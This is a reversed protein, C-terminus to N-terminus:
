KARAVDALTSLSKLVTAGYKKLRKRMVRVAEPNNDVLIATRDLRAAAEGATGSGAFFDLVIDGPRSHVRVIREIIKLPKQTPYGSKESGTPSVITNWWVDTPTKGRAAKEPGALGPAMYPIRDIDDYNFVFQGPNRSYWLINDHKAPWRSKSRGGFDYSWIIENVFAERGFITDMLVKVYHVERYDLHVFISGDDKLVRHAEQLRPEMFGLFDECSDEYAMKGIVETKYRRGQFGSRDGSEPDHTVRLTTRAQTRGTNFPPDIYILGISRDPIAALAPQNDSKLIHIM